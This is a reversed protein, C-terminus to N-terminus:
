IDFNRNKYGKDEFRKSDECHKKIGLFTGDAVIYHEALEIGLATLVNGITATASYDEPSPKLNGSPHNHAIVLKVVKRGICAEVLDRLNIETCKLNGENITKLGVIENKVNFMLAILRENEVGDLESVFIRGLEDYDTIRKGLIGRNRIWIHVDSILKIHAASIDSLGSAKLSDFSAEFVNSLSGYSDILEHALPKTDVRPISHFLILELIEHEALADIGNDIYRSRLRSRHGEHFKKDKNEKM